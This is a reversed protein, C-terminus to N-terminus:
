LAGCGAAILLSLITVPVGTRAHERFSITLGSRAAADVVIINAISGIIILNSAMGAALAMAPGAIADKAFPILLMVAPVNSVLDSLFM